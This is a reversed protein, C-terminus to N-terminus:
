FFTFDGLERATIKTHIANTDCQTQCVLAVDSRYLQNASRNDMNLYRSSDKFGSALMTVVDKHDNLIGRLFQCFNQESQSDGVPETQIQFM